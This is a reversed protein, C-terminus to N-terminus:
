KPLNEQVLETEDILRSQRSQAPSFELLQNRGAAANLTTVASSSLSFFSGPLVVVRSDEDGYRVM